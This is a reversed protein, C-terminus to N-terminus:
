KGRYIPIRIEGSLLKPLLANRTSALTWIQRLNAVVSEHLSRAAGTFRDMVEDPPVLIKMPRFNSKSIELFTTGNAEGLIAEHNERAWRLMYHNSPNTGCTM